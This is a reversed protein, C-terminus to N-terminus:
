LFYCMKNSKLVIYSIFIICSYCTIGKGESYCYKSFGDKEKVTKIRGGVRNQMEVISVEHGVKTLEYAASLGAPGAGVVIVHKKNKTKSYKKPDKDGVISNGTVVSM